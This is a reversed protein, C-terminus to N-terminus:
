SVEVSDLWELIPKGDDEMYLEIAKGFHALYEHLREVPVAYNKLLFKVWNIEESLLGMDGLSLAASIDLGLYENAIELHSEHMGNRQIVGRLHAEIQPQQDTFKKWSKLYKDPVSISSDISPHRLLIDEIVSVASDLKDGLYHGPIKQKLEPLLTFVLGGFGFAMNKEEMFRAAELLNAATFLQQAIMIVLDSESSEIANDLREIPVNAGLYIVNLGRRRLFLTVMLPSIIHDEQPPCAVLVCESRTPAPAASILTNLRRVILSSAFHEQQVTSKGQYWRKGIESIGAGMIDLCVVEVSYSAFAQALIYEAQRENFDMCAEVWHNRLDVISAGLVAPFPQPERVADVLPMELLPDRGSEEIGRWLKVARNIRLGEDIRAQLWRITKIDYQSYLRHGGDTRDPHPLGYRREWARLTDAKIGTEKLVVKLNYTPIISIEAV